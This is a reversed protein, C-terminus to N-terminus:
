ELPPDDCTVVPGSPPDERPYPEVFGSGPDDTTLYRTIARVIADAQAELVDPDRLLAEESENSLYLAEVVVAPVGASLRLVGYYDSGDTDPRHKAGADTDAVWDADLEDFTDVLEEWILGAARRSEPSGIQFYTETGPGPSPGDPDANHHISVFLEPQLRVAIEARTQVMVQYDDTRTLVVVAGVDELREEVLEAVDLNVDKELLGGPGVAGPETGGHGPDLVINAGRLPTGTVTVAAGCPSEARFGGDDRGDVPVVVGTPTRVAGVRGTDSVPAWDIEQAAPTTTTTSSTTTSSTTTSSTTAPESTGEPETTVNASTTTTVATTTTPGEVTRTGPDLPDGRWILVVMVVAATLVGVAYRLLTSQSM